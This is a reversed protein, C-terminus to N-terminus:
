LQFCFITFINFMSERTFSKSLFNFTSLGKLGLKGLSLVPFIPSVQKIQCHPVVIRSWLLGWGIGLANSSHRWLLRKTPSNTSARVGVKNKTFLIDVTVANQVSMKFDFCRHIRLQGPEPLVTPLTSQYDPPYFFHWLFERCPFGLPLEFCM